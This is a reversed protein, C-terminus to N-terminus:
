KMHSYQKQNLNKKIVSVKEPAGSPPLVASPTEVM